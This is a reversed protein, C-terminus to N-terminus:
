ILKSLAGSQYIPSALSNEIKRGVITSPSVISNSCFPSSLTRSHSSNINFNVNIQTNKNSSNKISIDFKNSDNLM